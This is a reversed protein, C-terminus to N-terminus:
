RGRVVHVGMGIFWIASALVGIPSLLGFATFDMGLMSMSETIPPVFLLVGCIIGVVNLWRPFTKMGAVSVAIIWLGVAPFHLVGLPDARKLIPHIGEPWAVVRTGFTLTRVSDLLGVAFGLYGVNSFWRLIPSDGLVKSPSPICGLGGFNYLALAVYALLVVGKIGLFDVLVFLIVSVPFFVGAFIFPVSAWKSLM